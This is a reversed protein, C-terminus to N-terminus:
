LDRQLALRWQRGAQPLPTPMGSQWGPDTAHHDFLNRLGISWQWGSRLLARNSLTTNILVQGPASDRRSAALGELGFQCWRPCPAIWAVKATRQPFQQTAGAELDRRGLQWSVNARLRMGNAWRTELEADVGRTQVSGVNRFRYLDATADYTLAILDHMRNQYLSAAVRTRESPWGEVALEHGRMTEAHLSPDPQYGGAGPVAYHAEYANPPRYASGAIGKVVWRPAAQFVLGVRPNFRTQGSRHRDVRGGLQATWRPHLQWQDEAFLAERREHRRDDLYRVPTPTLDVNTQVLQPVRQWETGVTLQQTASVRHVGRLEVGAWRAEAEDRNLVPGDYVYDGVFRYQGLWTRATVETHDGLRLHREVNLLSQTDRFRSGPQGFAIGPYLPLQKDRDAHLASVSWPGGDWRLRLATRRTGDVRDSWQNDLRVPEGDALMRSASLRLAGEGLPGQWAAHVQRHEGSGTQLGLQTGDRGDRPARTVVNIVGALANAGYVASGQGPIFEIREVESLDLPFEDGLFAQDFVPDNVRNGDILLLLRTNLDGAPLLGRTGAYSYIRDSTVSVGRLGALVDALTRAGLARLEAADIVTVSAATDSMRQPLRSAGSVPLNLLTDLSLQSLSATSAADHAASAGCQGVLAAAVCARWGTCWAAARRRRTASPNTLKM